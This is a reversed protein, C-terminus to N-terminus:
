PECPVLNKQRSRTTITKSLFGGVGPIFAVTALVLGVPTNRLSNEVIKMGEVQAGSIKVPIGTQTGKRRSDDLPPVPFM